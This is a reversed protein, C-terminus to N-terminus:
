QFVESASSIGYPLVNFQYRGFPTIFTTYHKSNEVLPLQWFVSNLDLKTFIKAGGLKVLLYDVSPLPFTEHMVAENLKRYDCCLRLGQGRPKRVVVLPACWKWPESVKTIVGDREMKDLEKKVIDVITLPIGRATHLAHTFADAKVTIDYTESM